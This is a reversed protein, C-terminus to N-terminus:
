EMVKREDRDRGKGERRRVVGEGRREEIRGKERGQSEREGAM